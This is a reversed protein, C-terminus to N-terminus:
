TGSTYGVFFYQKLTVQVVKLRALIWNGIRHKNINVTCETIAYMVLRYMAMGTICYINHVVKNGNHQELIIYNVQRDIFEKWRPDGFLVLLFSYELKLVMQKYVCAIVEKVISLYANTISKNWQIGQKM